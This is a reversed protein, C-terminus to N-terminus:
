ILLEIKYYVQYGKGTPIVQFVNRAYFCQCGRAAKEEETLGDLENIEDISNVEIVKIQTKYVM